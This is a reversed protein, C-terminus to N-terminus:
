QGSSPNLIRNVLYPLQLALVVSAAVVAARRVAPWERRIMPDLLLAAIVAVRLAGGRHWELLILAIAIKGLASAIPPTWDIASLAVDFSATVIVLMAAFAVGPSALRRTLAVLLLVDAASEIAAQGYGGAHPLNDFWPGVVVRVVWMIW